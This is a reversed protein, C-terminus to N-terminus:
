ATPFRPRGGDGSKDGGRSGESMGPEPRPPLPLTPIGPLAPFEPLAPPEPVYDPRAVAPPVVGGAINMEAEFAAPDSADGGAEPAVGGIGGIAM